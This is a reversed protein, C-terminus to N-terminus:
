NLSVLDSKHLSKLMGWLSLWGCVFIRRCIGPVYSYTLFFHRISWKYIRHEIKVITWKKEMTRITYIAVTLIVKKGICWQMVSLVLALWLKLQFSFDGLEAILWADRQHWFIIIVLEKRLELLLDKALVKKEEYKWRPKGIGIKLWIM